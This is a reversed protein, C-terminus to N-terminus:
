MNLVSNWEGLGNFSFPNKVRNFLTRVIDKPIAKKETISPLIRTYLEKKMRPDGSRGYIAEAIQYTSPAGHYSIWKNGDRFSMRWTCTRHWHVLAKYYLDASLEQYYVIALRGPTAADVSLIIINEMADEKLEYKKGQLAKNLEEAIIEETYIQPKADEDIEASFFDFLHNVTGEFPAPVEAAEVGFSVFYRSDVYTGQRQILWRLAHHAKQSVDYGVQVAETPKAFRGRYTYGSKDNASILKSMDGANRIRSGHQTTLLTEKGTVYCYGTEMEEITELYDIFEDFLEKDEWVVSDDATDHLVDFRVFASLIDGPVVKYILPREERSTWKTIIENNSDTPIVKENILDEIVKGKKIYHYIAKVKKSSKPSEAWEKMQKLYDQHHKERKKEGTYPVYDGAVYFLKDHIYHPASASARNASGTTAPVVTRANEKEIVKASMFDGDSDILLEIQASQMVHSVPLLTIRQNRREEFEGVHDINNDYVRSLQQMWSM